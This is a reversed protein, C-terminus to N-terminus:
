RRLALGLFGSGIIRLWVILDQRGTSCHSSPPVTSANPAVAQM